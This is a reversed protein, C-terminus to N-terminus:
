ALTVMDRQRHARTASSPPRWGTAEALLGDRTAVGCGRDNHPHLSILRLERGAITRIFYELMDAFQNAYLKWPPPCTSSSKNEPRPTSTIWVAQCIEVAYDMETGMFSEPSYEFRLNM